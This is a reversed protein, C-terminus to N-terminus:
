AAECTVSAGAGTGTGQFGFTAAQGAAVRGNWAANTVSVTRGTGTLTGNWAQGASAGDPLTVRVVWGDLASRASVNVSAVFGGPWQSTVTYAATCASTGPTPTPTATPTVTPTPTPTVTPTPTPTPTPDVGLTLNNQQARWPSRCLGCDQGVFARGAQTDGKLQWRFWLQAARGFEGGNTQHYTGGHGVDLNGMFAPLGAPLKGWDDMANPYAIDSPGGIIYAIPHDLRRLQYDDADNLLGSSFIGTTTVRPDRSVAYAEVGGCSFGAAGIESTDLRNYLASGPRSNEAVAWDISQALWASTSSGGGGPNGNSIVLFGHSAIERLFNQASTGDASCAGNSWVVVPMRESPLTAPRYITHNPLSSATSYDAPYPGSGGPAAAAPTLASTGLLAGAAVVATLAARALPRRM